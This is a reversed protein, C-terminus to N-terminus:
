AAETKVIEGIRRHPKRVPTPEVMLTIMYQDAHPKCYSLDAFMPPSTCGEWECKEDPHPKVKRYRNAYRVNVEEDVEVSEDINRPRSMDGM